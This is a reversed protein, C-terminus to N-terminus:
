AMRDRLEEKRHISFGGSPVGDIVWEGQKCSERTSTLFVVDKPWHGTCDRVPARSASIEETLHPWWYRPLTTRM